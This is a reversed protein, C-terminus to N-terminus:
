GEPAWFVGDLEVLLDHRCIDAELILTNDLEPFHEAYFDVIAQQQAGPRVFLRLAAACEGGGRYASLPPMGGEQLLAEVNRRVERVQAVGEGVHCSEHGVIAATGSLLMAKRGSGPSFCAVRSFSPSSPGYQRPYHYASVQRPNEIVRPAIKAALLYVTLGCAIDNGIATGAPIYHQMTGAQQFAEARGVCFQKYNEADGSGANIGPVFNWCKLIHPFGHQLSAELLSQYSSFSLQTLDAALGPHRIHALLYNESVALQLNGSQEFRVDSDVYWHEVAVSEGIIPLPISFDGASDTRDAPFRALLQRGPAAESVGDNSFFIHM